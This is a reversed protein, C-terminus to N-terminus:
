RSLRTTRLVQIEGCDILGREQFPVRECNELGMSFDWDGVCDSASNCCCTSNARARGNPPPRGHGSCRNHARQQQGVHGGAGQELGLLLLLSAREQGGSPARHQSNRSNHPNHKSAAGAPPQAQKSNPTPPAALPCQERLGSMYAISARNTLKQLQKQGTHREKCRKSSHVNKRQCNGFRRRRYQLAFCPFPFPQMTHKPNQTNIVQILTRKGNYREKCCRSSHMHRGAAIGLASVLIITPCSLPITHKLNQPKVNM